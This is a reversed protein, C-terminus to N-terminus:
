IDKHAFIHEHRVQDGLTMKENKIEMRGNVATSNEDGDENSESRQGTDIVYKYKRLCRHHCRAQFQLYQM